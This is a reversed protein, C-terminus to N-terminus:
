RDRVLRIGTIALSVDLTVERPAGLKGFWGGVDDDSEEEMEMEVSQSTMRM